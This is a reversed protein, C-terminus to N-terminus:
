SVPLYRGADLVSVLDPNLPVNRIQGLARFAPPVAPNSTEIQQGDTPEVTLAYSAEEVEAATVIPPDGVPLRANEHKKRSWLQRRPCVPASNKAM